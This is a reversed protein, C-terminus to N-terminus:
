NFIEEYKVAIEGHDCELVLSKNSMHAVRGLRVFEETCLRSCKKYIGVSHESRSQYVLADGGFKKFEGIYVEQGTRQRKEGGKIVPGFPILAYDEAARDTGELRTAAPYDCQPAGELDLFEHFSNKTIFIGELTHFVLRSEEPIRDTFFYEGSKYM